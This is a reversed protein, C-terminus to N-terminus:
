VCHGAYCIGADYDYCGCEGNAGCTEWQGSFDGDFEQPEGPRRKAPKFSFAFGHKHPKLKRGLNQGLIAAMRLIAQHAEAALRKMQEQDAPSLKVRKPQKEM